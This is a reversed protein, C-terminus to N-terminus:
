KKIIVESLIDHDPISPTFYDKTEYIIVPTLLILSILNPIAM